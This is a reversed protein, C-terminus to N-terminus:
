LEIKYISVMFYFHFFVIFLFCNKSSLITVEVELYHWKTKKISQDVKLIINIHDQTLFKVNQDKNIQIINKKIGFVFALSM